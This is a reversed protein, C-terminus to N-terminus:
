PERASRAAPSPHDPSCPRPPVFTLADPRRASEERVLRAGRRIEQLMEHMALPVFRLNPAKKRRPHASREITHAAKMKDIIEELGQM